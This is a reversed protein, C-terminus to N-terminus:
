ASMKFTAQSARVARPTQVSFCFLQATDGNTQERRNYRALTSSLAKALFPPKEETQCEQPHRPLIPGGM